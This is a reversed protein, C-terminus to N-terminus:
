KSEDPKWLIALIGGIIGLILGIGMGGMCTLISIVSLCLIWTGWAQHHKPDTYLKIASVIIVAGFVIGLLTVAFAWGGVNWRHMNEEWSPMIGEMWSMPNNPDWWFSCIVTGLIIFIGSLLSLVVAAVPKRGESM